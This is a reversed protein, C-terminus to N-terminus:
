LFYCAWRITDGEIKGSDSNDVRQQVKLDKLMIFYDTQM